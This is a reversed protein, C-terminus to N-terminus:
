TLDNRNHPVRLDHGFRCVFVDYTDDSEVLTGSQTMESSFDCWPCAPGSWAGQRNRAM